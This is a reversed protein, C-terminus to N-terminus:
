KLPFYKEIDKQLDEINGIQYRETSSVYRHGAFYQVERLNHTKLKNTIVSMRIQKANRLQPYPKKLMDFLNKLSNKLKTGGQMSIILQQTTKGTERLINARTATIYEHLEMVQFAQLNLTRQNSKRSGPIIIKGKDAKFHATELRHLEETTVAQYILLGLIVRNRQQRPNTVRYDHYIRDLEGNELLNCPIERSIGRLYVGAAPNGTNHRTQLFSYYHRVSVLIRSINNTKKGVSRCHSIFSLIDNYTAQQPQLYQERLWGTFYAVYRQHQSITNDRFGNDQLYKKFNEM